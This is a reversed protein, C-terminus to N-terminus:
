GTFILWRFDVKLRSKHKDKMVFIIDAWQLDNATVQHRASSSTGGSCVSLATKKCFIVEATPNHRKDKSCIFLLNKM